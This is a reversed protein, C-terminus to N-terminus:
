LRAEVAPKASRVRSENIEFNKQFMEQATKFNFIERPMNNILDACQNLVNQTVEYYPMSFPIFRRIMGNVHEVSGKQWPSGPDCFYTKIGSKHLIHHDAFEKGNDYTITKAIKGISQKIKAITPASKKSNNKILILKRTKREILSIVNQSMSGHNFFLDAEFHGQEFRKEIHKPRYDISTRFKIIGRLKANRNIGRNRKKRVLCKYLKLKRGEKSYIFVYITEKSISQNPNDKSWRGAIANPSWKIKLKELLFAKLAKNKNIKLEHKTKRQKAKEHADRPYLYGDKDSNRRIERSIVSVCRNLIRGIERLGKGNKLQEYIKMREHLSLQM